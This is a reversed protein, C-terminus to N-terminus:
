PVFRKHLVAVPLRCSRLADGSVDHVTTCSSASGMQSGARVRRSGSPLPGGAFRHLSHSGRAVQSSAKFHNAAHVLSRIEGFSVTGLVTRLQTSAPTGPQSNLAISFALMAPNVDPRDTRENQGRGAPCGHQDPDIRFVKYM